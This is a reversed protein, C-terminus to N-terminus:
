ALAKYKNIRRRKARNQTAIYSPVKPYIYFFEGTRHQDYQPHKDYSRSGNASYSISSINSTESESNNNTADRKRSQNIYLM